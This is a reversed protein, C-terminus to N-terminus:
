MPRQSTNPMQNGDYALSSWGSENRRVAKRSESSTREQVPNRSKFVLSTQPPIQKNLLWHRLVSGSNKSADGDRRLHALCVYQDGKSPKSFGLSNLKKWHSEDSLKVMIPVRTEKQVDRASCYGGPFCSWLNRKHNAKDESDSATVRLYEPPEFGYAIKEKRIEPCEVCRNLTQYFERAFEFITKGNSKRIKSLIRPKRQRWDQITRKLDKPTESAM